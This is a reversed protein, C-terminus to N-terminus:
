SISNWFSLCSYYPPLHSQCFARRLSMTYVGSASIASCSYIPLFIHLIPRRFFVDFAHVDSFGPSFVYKSERSSTGSRRPSSQLFTKQATVSRESDVSRCVLCYTPLSILLVRSTNSSSLFTSSSRSLSFLGFLVCSLNTGPLDLSGSRCSRRMTLFSLSKITVCGIAGSLFLLLCLSCNSFLLLFDKSTLHGPKRSGRAM